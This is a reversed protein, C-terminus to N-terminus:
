LEGPRGPGDRQWLPDAPSPQMEPRPIPARDGEAWRLGPRLLWPAWLIPESPCVSVCGVMWTGAIASLCFLLPLAPFLYPGGVEWFSQTKSRASAPTDRVDKFTGLRPLLGPRGSGLGRSVPSTPYPWGPSLCPTSRSSRPRCCVRTPSPM